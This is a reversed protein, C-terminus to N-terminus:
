FGLPIELKESKSQESEPPLTAGGAVSGIEPRYKSKTHIIGGVLWGLLGDPAHLSWVKQTTMAARDYEVVGGGAAGVGVESRSGRRIRGAAEDNVGRMQRRGGM